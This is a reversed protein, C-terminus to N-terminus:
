KKQLYNAVTTFVDRAYKDLKPNHANSDALDFITNIKKNQRAIVECKKRYGDLLRKELKSAPPPCPRFFIGDKVRCGIYQPYGLSQILVLNSGCENVIYDTGLVIEGEKLIRLPFEPM